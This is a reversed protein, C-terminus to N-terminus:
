QNPDFIVFDGNKIEDLSEVISQIVKSTRLEKPLTKIAIDKRTEYFLDHYENIEQLIAPDTISDKMSLLSEYFTLFGKQYTELTKPLSNEVIEKRLKGLDRNSMGSGFKDKLKNQITDYDVHNKLLSITYTRKDLQLM